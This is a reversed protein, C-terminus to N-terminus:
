ASSRHGNDVLHRPRHRRICACPSPAHRYDRVVTNAPVPRAHGPEGVIQIAHLLAFTLMADKDLDERSRRETFRIANGLADAIHILRIRDDPKM